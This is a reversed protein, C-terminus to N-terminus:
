HNQMKRPKRLHMRDLQQPPNVKILRFSGVRKIHAQTNFPLHHKIAAMAHQVQSRPPLLTGALCPYDLLALFTPMAVKGDDPYMTEM